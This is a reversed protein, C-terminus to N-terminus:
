TKEFLEEPIDKKLIFRIFPLTRLEDTKLAITKKVNEPVISRIKVIAKLIEEAEQDGSAPAALAILIVFILSLCGRKM